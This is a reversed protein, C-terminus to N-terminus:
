LYILVPKRFYLMYKRALAGLDFSVYILSYTDGSLCRFRQTRQVQVFYDVMRQM